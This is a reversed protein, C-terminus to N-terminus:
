EPFKFTIEPAQNTKITYKWKYTKSFAGPEENANHSVVKVSKPLAVELNGNIDLNSDAYINLSKASQSPMTLTYSGDNNNSIKIM